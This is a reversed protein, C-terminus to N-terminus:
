PALTGDDTPPTAAIRELRRPPRRYYRHHLGILHQHHVVVRGRHGGQPLGEGLQPALDGAAFVRHAGPLVELHVIAGPHDDDPPHHLAEVPDRQTARKPLLRPPLRVHDQQRARPTLVVEHRRKPRPSVLVDVLRDIRRVHRPPHPARQPLHLRPLVGIPRLHEFRLGVLGGDIGVIRRRGARRPADHRPAVAHDRRQTRVLSARHPRADVRRRPRPHRDPERAAATALDRQVLPRPAITAREGVRPGVVVHRHQLEADGRAADRVHDGGERSRERRGGRGVVVRHAGLGGDAELEGVEAIAEREVSRRRGRVLARADGDAGVGEEAERVRQHGSVLGERTSAFAALAPRRDARRRHAPRESWAASTSTLTQATAAPDAHICRGRSRALSV